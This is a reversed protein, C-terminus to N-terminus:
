ASAKRPVTYVWREASYLDGRRVQDVGLDFNVDGRGATGQLVCRQGGSRYVRMVGPKGDAIAAVVPLEFIVENALATVTATEDLPWEILLRSREIAAQDEDPPADRYVRFYGGDAADAVVLAQESTIHLAVRLDKSV